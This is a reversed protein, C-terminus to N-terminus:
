RSEGKLAVNASRDPFEFGDQIETKLIQALRKEGPVAVDARLMSWWTAYPEATPGSLAERERPWRRAEYQVLSASMAKAAAAPTLNGWEPVRHRLRCLQRDRRSLSIQNLPSVGGWRKLGLSAFLSIEFGSSISAELAELLRARSDEPVQRGSTLYEALDFVARLAPDNRSVPPRM